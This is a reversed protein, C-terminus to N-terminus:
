KGSVEKIRSLLQSIGFAIGLLLLFSFYVKLVIIPIVFPLVVTVLLIFPMIIALRGHYLKYKRNVLVSLIISTLCVILIFVIISPKWINGDALRQERLLCVFYVVTTLYVFVFLSIQSHSEVPLKVTDKHRRIWDRRTRHTIYSWRYLIESKNKIAAINNCCASYEEKKENKELLPLVIRNISDAKDMMRGERLYLNGIEYCHFAGDDRAISIKIESIMATAENVLLRYVAPYDVAYEFSLDIGGIKRLSEVCFLLGQMSFWDKDPEEVFLRLLQNTANTKMKEHLQKSPIIRNYQGFLEVSGFIVDPTLVSSLEESVGKLVDNSTLRDDGGLFLIFEGEALDLAKQYARCPGSHESMRFALASFGRGEAQSIYDQITDEDWDCSNDDVIIMQINPYDQTLISEMCKELYHAQNYTIIAITIKPQYATEAM